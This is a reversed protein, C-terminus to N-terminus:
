FPTSPTKIFHLQPPATHTKKAKKPPPPPPAISGKPCLEPLLLSWLDNLTM